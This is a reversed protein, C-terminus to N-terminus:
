KTGREQKRDLGCSWRRDNHGPYSAGDSEVDSEFDPPVGVSSGAVLLISIATESIDQTASGTPSEHHSTDRFIHREPAFRCASLNRRVIHATNPSAGLLTSRLRRCCLSPKLSHGKTTAEDEVKTSVRCFVIRLAQFPLRSERDPCCHHALKRWRVDERSTSRKKSLANDPTPFRQKHQSPPCSVTKITCPTCSCRQMPLPHGM